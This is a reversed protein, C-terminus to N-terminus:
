QSKVLRPRHRAHYCVLLTCRRIHDFDLHEYPGGAVYRGIAGLLEARWHALWAVHDNPAPIKPIM